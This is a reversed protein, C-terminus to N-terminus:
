DRCASPLFALNTADTTGSSCNWVLDDSSSLATPELVMTITGSAGVGGADATITITGVSGVEISDCYASSFGPWGAATDDDPMAGSAIRTESVALKAPAAAYLCESVKSRITYNQYAPIAIAMLIALIAIVIMLEILTFGTTRPMSSM